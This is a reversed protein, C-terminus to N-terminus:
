LDIKDLLFQAQKKLEKNEFSHLVSTYISKAEDLRERKEFIQGMRIMGFGTLENEPFQDIMVNLEKLCKEYDSVQYLGEVLLFYAEPLHISYKYTRIIDAFLANSKKYNKDRFQKKANNFAATSSFGELPKKLSDRSVSALMRVPYDKSITSKPLVMAVNQRMNELEYYAISSKIKEQELLTQTHTLMEKTERLGSFHNKFSTFAVFLFIMLGLSFM